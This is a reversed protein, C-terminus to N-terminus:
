RQGGFPIEDGYHADIQAKCVACAQAMQPMCYCENEQWHRITLEDTNDLEFELQKVLELKKTTELKNWPRAINAVRDIGYDRELRNLILCYQIFLNDDQLQAVTPQAQRYDWPATKTRAM